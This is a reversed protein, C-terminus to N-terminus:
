FRSNMTYEVYFFFLVDSGIASFYPNFYIRAKSLNGAKLVSLSFLAVEDLILCNIGLILSIARYFSFLVSIKPILGITELHRSVCCKICNRVVEYFNTGNQHKRVGLTLLFAM